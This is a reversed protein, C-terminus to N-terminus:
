GAFGFIRVRFGWIKALFLLRRVSGKLSGKLSIRLTGKFPAM